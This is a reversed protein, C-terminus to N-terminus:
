KEHCVICSLAEPKSICLDAGATELEDRSGYGWLVGISRIRNKRAAVIDYRRDGVMVLQEPRFSHTKIIHKILEGKDAHNHDLQSGYVHMFYQSLGFHELITNSLTTIKSTAVFLTKGRAKLEELMEVIGDYVANENIGAQMDILRHRYHRVAEEVMDEVVYRRLNDRLPPGVCTRLEEQPPVEVGIKELAYAMSNIISPGSDTLCGDLDFLITDVHKM